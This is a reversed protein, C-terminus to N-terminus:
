KICWQHENVGLELRLPISQEEMDDTIMDTSIHVARSTHTHAHKYTQALMNARAHTHTHSTHTRKQTYSIAWDKM